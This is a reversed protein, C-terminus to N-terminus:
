ARATAVPTAVPRKEIAAERAAIFRPLARLVPASLDSGYGFDLGGVGVFVGKLPTASLVNAVGLVLNIPLAHSSHPVPGLPHDILDDLPITVVRGPRLGVATDVIVVPQGAPLDILHAIDLEGCREFEVRRRDARRRVLDRVAVLAAGDDARDLNGCVLVHVSKAANM